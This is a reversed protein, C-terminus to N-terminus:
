LDMNLLYLESLCSIVTYVLPLSLVIPVLVFNQDQPSEFGADRAHWTLATGSPWPEREIFMEGEGFYYLM